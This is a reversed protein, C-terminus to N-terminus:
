EREGSFTLSFGNRDMLTEEEGYIEISDVKLVGLLNNQENVGPVWQQIRCNLLSNTEAM